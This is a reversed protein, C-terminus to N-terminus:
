SSRFRPKEAVDWEIDIISFRPPASWEKSARTTAAHKVLGDAVMNVERLCHHIRRNIRNLFDTYFLWMQEFIWPIKKEMVCWVVAESGYELGIWKLDFLKAVRIAKFFAAFEASFNSIVELFSAFCFIAVGLYNQVIGGAGILGPNDLSCEDINIKYCGM